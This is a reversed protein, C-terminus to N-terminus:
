FPCDDTAVGPMATPKAAVAPLARTEQGAMPAAVRFAVAGASTKQTGDEGTWPEHKVLVGLGRGVLHATDLGAFTTFGCAQIMGKYKALGIEKAKPNTEPGIGVLFSTRAQGADCVFSIFHSTNGKANKKEEIAAISMDHWGEPAQAIVGTQAKTGTLDPILAM